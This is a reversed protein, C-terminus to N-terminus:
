KKGAVDELDQLRRKLARWRLLLSVLYAPIIVLIVAYGAVMYKVSIIPDLM